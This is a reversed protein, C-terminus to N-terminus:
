RRTRRAGQGSAMHASWFTQEYVAKLVMAIARQAIKDEFILPRHSDDAKPIYAKRVPMAKIKQSKPSLFAPRSRSERRERLIKGVAKFDPQQRPVDPPPAPERVALRHGGLADFRVKPKSVTPISRSSIRWRKRLTRSM